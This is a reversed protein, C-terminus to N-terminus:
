PEEVSNRVINHITTNRQEKVPTMYNKGYCKILLADYDSIVMLKTDEFEVGIYRHNMWRADFVERRGKLQDNSRFMLTRNGQWKNKAINIYQKAKFNKTFLKGFYYTSYFLFKKLNGYKNVQSLRVSNTDRNMIDLITLYMLKKRQENLTESIYDCIFIDIWYYQNDSKKFQTKINGFLKYQSNDKLCQKLKEFNKRTMAVDSDDDWPIFGHERIAGLLTGGHLTYQIDNERCIQDFEKLLELLRQQTEKINMIKFAM